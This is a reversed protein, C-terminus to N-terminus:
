LYNGGFYLYKCKCVCVGGWGVGGWLILSFRRNVIKGRSEKKERKREGRNDMLIM